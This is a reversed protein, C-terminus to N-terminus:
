LKVGRCRQPNPANIGMTKLQERKQHLFWHKYEIGDIHLKPPQETDTVIKATANKAEFNRGYEGSYLNGSFGVDERDFLRRIMEIPFGVKRLFGEFQLLKVIRPFLDFIKTIKEKLTKNESKLANERQESERLKAQYATHLQEKGQESSAKIAINQAKLQKNEAELRKM